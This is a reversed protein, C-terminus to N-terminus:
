KPFMRCLKPFKRCRFASSTSAELADSSSHEQVGSCAWQMGFRGFSCRVMKPNLCGRGSFYFLVFCNARGRIKTNQYGLTTRYKFGAKPVHINGSLRQINESLRLINGSLRLINGSLRQINGSNRQINWSLQQTKGSLLRINGSLRQINGSLRQTNGSLRLINGLLREINGSLQGINGSLLVCRSPAHAHNKQIAIRLL